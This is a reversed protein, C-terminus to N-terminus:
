RVHIVRASPATRYTYAGYPAYGYPRYAPNMHRNFRAGYGYRWSAWNSTVYPYPATYAYGGESYTPVAYIAAGSYVPGQNVVYIPRRTDSPDLPYGTPPVAIPIPPFGYVITPGPETCCGDQALLAAPNSLTLAAVTGALCCVHRLRRVVTRM